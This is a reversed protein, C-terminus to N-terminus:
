GRVHEFAVVNDASPMVIREILAALKRLADGKEADYSHRNYIGEVGGIAHGLVREAIESQIGARSMLSRATRRLDHLRWGSVGCQADLKRKPESASRWVTDGKGAFVHPNGLFRPQREIIDLALRPLKLTGANGKEREETRITWVGNDIDDWRLTLLKDKRQGTLLLLRILAGFRGAKNAAHWVKRLEDDNLVRSRERVQKAVRRMGKAFPPVYTDDRSQVWSAISRLTTLVADAMAPGHKDEVMDLLMAIDARRIEVFDRDAWYPLIYKEVIRRQEYETRMKNKEVHRTLWNAAVVAVSAPKPKPPEIAPKGAKIRRIAERALNRADDIKLEAASGLTAWVQKGYPDRAVATFVVPGQAPVRVYHGRMEPDSIIYRKAKRRLTAIM